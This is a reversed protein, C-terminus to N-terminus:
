IGTRKASSCDSIRRPMEWAPCAPRQMGMATPRERRRRLTALEDAEQLLNLGRRLRYQERHERCCFDGDRRLRM